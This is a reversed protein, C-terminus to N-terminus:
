IMLCHKTTVLEPYNVITFNFKKFFDVIQNVVLNLPHISGDVLDLAPIMLDYAPKQNQDLNIVLQQNKEEFLEQIAEQLFNLEKGFAKKVALEELERLQQFLPTVHKKVFINKTVILEKQNDVSSITQKFNDIIKKIQDM